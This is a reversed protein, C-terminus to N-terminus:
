QRASAPELPMVSDNPGMLAYYDEPLGSRECLGNRYVVADHETEFSDLLVWAGEEFFYVEWPLPCLGSNIREQM